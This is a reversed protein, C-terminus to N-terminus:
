PNKKGCSPKSQFISSRFVEQLLDNVNGHEIKVITPSPHPNSTAKRTTVEGQFVFAIPATFLPAIQLRRNKGKTIM